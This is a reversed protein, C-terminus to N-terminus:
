RATRAPRRRRLRPRRLRRRRRRPRRRCGSLRLQVGPERAPQALHVQQQRLLDRHRVCPFTAGTPGCTGTGTFAFTFQACRALRCPLLPVEPRYRHEASIPAYVGAILQWALKGSSQRVAQVSAYGVGGGAYGGISGNGGFDVLANVMASYVSASGGNGFNSDDHLHHWRRHQDRHRVHQAAQLGEGQRAQLWARRRSPVHRLRLRRHLRRGLGEQLTSDGITTRNFDVTTPDTFDITGFIDAVQAVPGRGRDRRLPCQGDDRRGPRRDRARRHGCPFIQAYSVRKKNPHGVESCASRWKTEHIQFRRAVSHILTANPGCAVRQQLAAFDFRFLGSM